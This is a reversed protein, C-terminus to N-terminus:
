ARTEAENKWHWVICDHAYGRPKRMIRDIESPALREKAFLRMVEDIYSM